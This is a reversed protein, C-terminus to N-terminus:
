SSGGMRGPVGTSGVSQPHTIFTTSSRQANKSTCRSVTIAHARPGSPAPPRRWSTRSNPVVVRASSSSTSQSSFPRHRLHRHLGGPHIPLRDHAVLRRQGPPSSLVGGAPRRLLGSFSPAAQAQLRLTLTPAAGVVVPRTPVALRGPDPLRSPFTYSHLFWHNFGRLDLVPELRTSTPRTATCARRITPRSRLRHVPGAPLGRPLGAAYGHRPQLPFAPRRGRRGTLPSRPFWGRAARGAPWGPRRRAPEDDASPSPSPASGEYYDSTPFAPWM